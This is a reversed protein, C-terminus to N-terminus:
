EDTDGLTLISLIRANERYSGSEFVWREWDTNKSPHYPAPHERRIKEVISRWRPDEMMVRLYGREENTLRSM